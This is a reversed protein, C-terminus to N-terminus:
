ALERQLWAKALAWDRMVTEPSVSLVAAVEEVTLGGFFRLEVIESKRADFAALKKLAEDVALVDFGPGPGEIHAAEELDLHPFNGERKQVNRARAFDVLIRRMLRACLAYFHNRNQWDVNRVDILRFYVEHVLATTQLSHGPRERAMYRKALRHIEDYVLPMLHQLAAEDGDGWARLLETVDQPSTV